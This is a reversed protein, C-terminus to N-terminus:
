RKLRAIRRIMRSTSQVKAGGAIAVRGGYGRVVNREPVTDPTYDGGKAHVDPKLQLLVRGVTDEGFTTVYDVCEFASVLAVRDALKMLPRGPGKLRRVSADSNIAVILLDGFRRASQLYRLHGIHLLDFCGNALVVRKGRRRAREVVPRLARLSLFKGRM